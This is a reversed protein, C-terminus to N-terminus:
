GAYLIPNARVYTHYLTGVNYSAIGNRDTKHETHYEPDPQRGGNRATQRPKYVDTEIISMMKGKGEIRGGNRWRERQEVKREGNGPASHM